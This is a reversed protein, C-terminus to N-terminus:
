RTPLQVRLQNLSTSPHLLQVLIFPPLARQLRRGSSPATNALLLLSAQLRWSSSSCSLSPYDSRCKLSPSRGASRRQVCLGGGFALANLSATATSAPYANGFVGPARQQSSQVGYQSRGARLHSCLQFGSPTPSHFRSCFAATRPASPASMNSVASNTKGYIPANSSFTIITNLVFAVLNGIALTRGSLPM